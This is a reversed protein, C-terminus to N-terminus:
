QDVLDPPVNAGSRRGVFQALAMLRGDPDVVQGENAYLTELGACAAALEGPALRFRESGPGGVDSTFAKGGLHAEVLLLGGPQLAKVLSAVLATDAYRVLVILACPESHPLPQDLDHELWDITLGTAAARHKALRLAEHSIDIGTVDFGRQALYLANRGGGCAVDLARGAPADGVWTELLASPHTREGYAGSAYRSNWRGADRESM